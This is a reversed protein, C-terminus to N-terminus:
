VAPEETNEGYMPGTFEPDAKKKRIYFIMYIWYVASAAAALLSFVGFIDPANDALGFNYLGHILMSVAMSLFMYKKNGTSVYKGNYWGEILGFSIHMMSLGRVLLQGVSSSFIYVIGEMIEFGISSITIFAIMDLWSVTDHNKKIMKKGIWVKVLEEVFANIVFCKILDNVVPAANDSIKLLGLLLSIALDLLFVPVGSGLGRILTKRCDKKYQEDEKLGKLFFYYLVSPIFSLVGVIIGLIM